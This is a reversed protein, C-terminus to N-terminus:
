RWRIRAEKVLAARIQRISHADVPHRFGAKSNATELKSDDLCRSQDPPTGSVLNKWGEKKQDLWTGDSAFDM